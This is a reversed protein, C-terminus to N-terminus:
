TCITSQCSSCSGTEVTTADTSVRIRREPVQDASLNRTYEFQIVKNMTFHSGFVVTAMDITRVMRTVMTNACKVM